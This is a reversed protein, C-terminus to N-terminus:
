FRTTQSQLWHYGQNQFLSAMTPTTKSLKGFVDENDPSRVVRHEFPYLGTFLSAFSPLTWGSQAYAQTYMLGHNALADVNPTTPNKFKGYVGVRDAQLTDVVILIM